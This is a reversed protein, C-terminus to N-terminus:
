NGQDRNITQALPRLPHRDRDIARRVEQTLGDPTIHLRLMAFHVYSHKRREDLFTVFRHPPAIVQTDFMSGTPTMAFQNQNFAFWAPVDASSLVCMCKYEEQEDGFYRVGRGFLTLTRTEILARVTAAYDTRLVPHFHDIHEYLKRLPLGQPATQRLKAIKKRRLNKIIEILVAAPQLTM